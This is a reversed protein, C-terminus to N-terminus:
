GGIVPRNADGKRLISANRWGHRHDILGSTYTREASQDRLRGDQHKGVEGAARQASRSNGEDGGRQLLRSQARGLLEAKQHHTEIRLIVRRVRIFHPATVDAIGVYGLRRYKQRSILAGDFGNGGRQSIAVAIVGFRILVQVGGSREHQTSVAIPRDASSM